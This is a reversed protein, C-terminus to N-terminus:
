KIFNFKPGSSDEGERGLNAGMVRPTTPDDGDGDAGPDDEAKPGGINFIGSNILAAFQTKKLHEAEIGCGDWVDEAFARRDSGLLVKQMLKLEARQDGMQRRGGSYSERRRGAKAKAELQHPTLEKLRPQARANSGGAASTDMTISDDKSTQSSKTGGFDKSRGHAASADWLRQKPLAPIDELGPFPRPNGTTTVFVKLPSPSRQTKDENSSTLPVWDFRKLVDAENSDM